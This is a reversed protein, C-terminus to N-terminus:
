RRPLALVVLRRAVGRVIATWLLAANFGFLLLPLGMVLLGLVAYGVVAGLFSQNEPHLLAILLAWVFAGILVALAAFRVAVRYAMGGSQVAAPALLAGVGGSVPFGAVILAIAVEDPKAAAFLLTAPTWLLVAVIAGLLRTRVRPLPGM